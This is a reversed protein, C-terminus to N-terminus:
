GRYSQGSYVLKGIHAEGSQRSIGVYEGFDLPSAEYQDRLICIENAVNSIRESM